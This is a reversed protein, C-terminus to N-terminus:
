QSQSQENLSKLYQQIVQQYEKPFQRYQEDLFARKRLENLDLNAANTDFANSEATEAKRKQSFERKNISKQADLLRSLIREQQNVLDQSLRNEKLQRAISELEDAMQKLSSGQKQAEPNNQLARRLNEALREQDQALRQIQQQAANGLRGGNQQMQQLLQQTLMNMAMQEDSMQQLMQMLSQMGGGSGGGSQSQNLAMLLDYAMLNIGSLIGDLNQSLKYYQIENVNIFFDRYGQYAQNADIFFKPPIFMMVMPNAFLKNVAIQIGEYHAMLDPLLPYPDQRYKTAVEEQRQSFIMLERIATQMAQMIEMQSGSGLSNKMDNLKRTMQKMKNLAQQQSAQAQSRFNQSLQQSSSTLNQQLDGNNSLQKIENLMNQAEKDKGQDLLKQIEDLQRNLADLKNSIIKQEDSLKDASNKSDGTKDLLAQQMKEMEQSIQLAKQVAQEKRISELLKLTNDIKQNFDELSFRYNEMAKKIADPNLDQLAKQFQQMAQQLQDNNIEQMIQQIKQMKQLTEASLAENKQLKDILQQYNDAVQDVQQSVDQQRQIINELQKKDEWNLKDQKLLERRKQELDKQLDKSKDLVSNLENKKQQEQREIERYIEEISPFRAKYKQSTGKQADPSNDYVEAWYTVVDGPLLNLDQLALVYDMDLNASNVIGMLNISTVEDNRLQYKLQLNKLGYDDSAIIHMPLLLNQNLITDEGPATINIEPPNDPLVTVTKEEPTNKRGLVDTIELYWSTNELVTFQTIHSVQNISQLPESTGDSWHLVVSKVPINTETFLTVKTYKIATVNGASTSDIETLLKTYAPYMYTLQYTKVVPNDLVEIRYVKSRVGQSSVYYTISYDLKDFIHKGAPMIIDRWKNELKYLLHYEADPLADVVEILVDQHRGITLNGPKVQISLLRPASQYRNLWYESARSPLYRYNLGWMAVLSLLMFIILNLSLSSLLRPYRVQQQKLRETGEQAIIQIIQDPSTEETDKLELTNQYLDDKQNHQEDLWRAIKLNSPRKQLQLYVLCLIGVLSIIRLTNALLSVEAQSTGWFRLVGYLHFGCLLILLAIIATRGYIIRNFKCRIHKILREFETM